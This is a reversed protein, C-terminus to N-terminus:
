CATENTVYSADLVVTTCLNIVLYNGREREKECEKEIEKDLVLLLNSREETKKIDFSRELYVKKWFYLFYYFRFLKFVHYAM